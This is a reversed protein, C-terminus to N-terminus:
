SAWPALTMRGQSVQRTAPSARALNAVPASQHPLGQQTQLRGQPGLRLQHDHAAGDPIVQQASGVRVEVQGGPQHGPGHHLPRPQRAQPGDGGPELVARHRDHQLLPGDLDGGEAAVTVVQVAAAGFRHLQRCLESGISGGAGTVLVRKGTVYGAVAALDIDVSARGLLDRMDVDRVDRVDARSAFSEAFAPLVKTTLGLESCQDVVAKILDKTASPVAVVVTSANTAHVVRDLDAVAGLVPVGFHRRQRMWPDDDLFGVPVLGSEPHSRMSHVLRAGSAGAGIILARRGTESALPALRMTARRWLARTILMLFFGFFTATVPVSRAVWQPQVWANLVFIATGASAAAAGLLLTEENTAVGVRGLYLRGLLGAGWQLLIAIAVLGSADLVTDTQLDTTYRLVLSALYAFALAFADFSMLVATRRSRFAGQVEFTSMVQSM